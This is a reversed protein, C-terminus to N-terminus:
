TFDMEWNVNQSQDENEASQVHGEEFSGDNHDEVVNHEMDFENSLNAMNNEGRRECNSRWLAVAREYPFNDVEYKTVYLRLCTDVNKDLKNRLKSKLFTLASFMREDEVSGLIMTQCLDVLKFYESMNQLLFESGSLTTWLKTIAGYELANDLKSFQEWMTDAFCRAQDKLKKGDLIGQIHEGQIETERCFHSQLIKIKAIFDVKITESCQRHNWYQPYVVSMAELLEDRPFRERIESSLSKAIEILSRRVSIVVNDFQERSVPCEKTTRGIKDNYYFPVMYGRVAMCLFGKEDFKLLNEDNEINIIKAWNTFALGTFSDAMMYLNDLALCALKRANTYEAIYMTRSQSMKVLSNMEHLLPLVGALTLYTEIDTFLFLLTQAKEVSLRHEYMVGVLSAYEDFLRQAPGKLSIWRTDVDKLLKNGNTVGDAFKKFESFRKPSRCFYAHVERVLYEVKSVLPFNSVIKFALNMRHAMCHIGIMYPSASLQLRACLGNRQGQMVSAGDAGVCVLKKAIMSHDMGGTEKLTNIVLEYINEATSSKSMKHIGLLYSNRIHYNVTYISMCIWATNDVATVEDLSLSLFTAKVIKEKMDDKEVQALYKGWEWGSTLSWHSSPFNPVQIFSLYKMMKPYDTMPRGNSLIHFVTSLQISKSLLNKEMMKGFQSTITGGSEDLKRKNILYKNYEEEYQLHRSDSKWRATSKKEDNGTKKDYVKGVHKEITDLKMQLKVVKGLKWSCSICKVERSTENKNTPPIPEIFPFRSVWDSQFQRGFDWRGKKRKLSHDIDGQLSFDEVNSSGIESSFANAESQDSSSHIRGDMTHKASADELTNVDREGIGQELSSSGHIHHPHNSQHKQFYSMVDKQRLTKNKEGHDMNSM